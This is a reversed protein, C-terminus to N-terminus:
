IVSIALTEIWGIKGDPLKVKSYEEFADLVQVKTGEHLIFLDQGNDAPASKVYGNLETLIAWQQQELKYKGYAIGETLVTLILCVGSLVLLFSHRTRFMFVAFLVTMMLLFSVGIMSWVSASFVGSVDKFIRRLAPTPVVNFEDVVQKQALALNHQADEDGPNVMLTREYNLIAEGLHGSRFHANALNYFTEAHLYGQDVISDYLVIAEAFQENQYAANASEFIPEAQAYTSLTAFLALVTTYLRNIRM